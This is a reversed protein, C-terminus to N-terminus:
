STFRNIPRLKVSLSTCRSLFSTEYWITSLAPLGLTCTWTLPSVLTKLGSSIEAMIKPLIFSVASPKRPLSTFCATTVTGAYKLSACRWAVLSAPTMAPRLTARMMLSGVAAAIAYPRSLFPPSFFMRTNSRPPPVKSTDIRVISLPTNSTTDVFPSVCRPPSSKSWRTISYKMLSMLFFNLTSTDPSARALCFSRRSASRALRASDLWCWTRTSISASASPTSRDSGSVRARKSSSLMSRNRLHMSGTSFHRRSEFISLDCTCSMTSTPPDVRMGLTCSSRRSYKSPLSGLLPMLGSSATAYPAATCPPMRPPSPPSSTLSMRSSSTAGSDSPMSVTPPTMVLSMGRLVTMGVLFLWVNVVYWSWCVVTEIWTKSPSRAMVLSLWWSPLNSRLPMGAAGRPCGCISTVKSTSALPMRLTPASSLPVPLFSFIVMVDSLPRSDCSSISRM